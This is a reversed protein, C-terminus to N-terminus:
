QARPSADPEVKEIDMGVLDSLRTRDFVKAVNPGVRLTLRKGQDSAEYHMNVLFSMNGSSIGASSSLDVVLERNGSCMLRRCAMQFDEEAYRDLEGRAVLQGDKELLSLGDPEPM